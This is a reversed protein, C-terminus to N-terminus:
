AAEEYMKQKVKIRMANEIQQEHLYNYIALMGAPPEGNKERYKKILSVVVGHLKDAHGIEETSLQYFMDAAEPEESKWEMALDIYANADKVEEQIKEAICKIIKM